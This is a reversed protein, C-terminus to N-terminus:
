EMMGVPGGGGWVGVPAPPEVEEACAGDCDGLEGLEVVHGNGDAVLGDELPANSKRSCHNAHAASTREGCM